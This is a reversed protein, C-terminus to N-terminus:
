LGGTIYNLSYGGLGLSPEFKSVSVSAGM